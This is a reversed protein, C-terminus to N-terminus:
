VIVEDLLHPGNADVVTWGSWGEGTRDRWRVLRSEPDAVYFQSSGNVKFYGRATLHGTALDFKTTSITVGCATNLATRLPAAAMPAGARALLNYASMAVTSVAIDTETTM